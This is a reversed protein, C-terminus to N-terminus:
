DRTPPESARKVDTVKVLSATLHPNWIKWLNRLFFTRIHKARSQLYGMGRERGEKVM